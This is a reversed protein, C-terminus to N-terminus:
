SLQALAETAIKEFVAVDSAFMSDAIPWHVVIEDIGLEAHAGAFDVFADFSELPRDPTFGTLLVKRLDAVDRGAEACVAGLREIQGGIAALSQEPTGTEYLKPDGTTVWAQGHRAALRMGRPGTAAVAFPLRPRQVCGPINRVEHASYHEGESTVVDETLLRDLLPVFEAFRDARQRPTWPDQGGKLLATADFGSGGAGIGLTVRGGSIDDLSILEKALTVPHRFNPSTVLTGLRLRSTVGAAATLTPIAGFWPGDRFTRWSLHDYTYATHFGLEEARQWSERGGESWRRDPLIVTSLRM